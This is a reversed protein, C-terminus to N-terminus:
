ACPDPVRLKNTILLWTCINERSGQKRIEADEKYDASWITIYVMFTIKVMQIILGMYYPHGM